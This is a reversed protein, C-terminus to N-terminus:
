FLQPKSDMIIHGEKDKIRIRGSSYKTEQQGNLYVTKVTGDPYERRKYSSTHIERQGNNFEIIKNGDVQLRIITGDPFVCEEHGDTFLYKITQDPFTIEKKGDPYHKEMQNNPFQLVELGDPYTTHTTQADAYFYIVTQDSTTQKVDGNFFTVRTTKGDASIEKRTGNCFIIIHRGNKLVQEVKGDPYKIVEQIEDETANPELTSGAPESVGDSNPFNQSLESQMMSDTASSTMEKLSNKTETPASFKVAQGLKVDRPTTQEIMHPTKKRGMQASRGRDKQGGPRVALETKNLRPSTSEIKKEIVAEAKKWTELRLREMVNVEDRLEKNEKTLTEIQNRLRAHISSWRLEKRKLEEQLDVIQQKLAQIEQREKKDPIARAAAAHKEFIMREKQLRKLEEKKYEEFQSLQETKKREFDEFEKRLDVMAKERDNRLQVLTANEARFQNIEHELEALKDKLLKSQIGAGIPKDNVAKFKQELGQDSRSENKTKLSPFLRKILDSVPPSEPAKDVNKEDVVGKKASAVKRQMIKDENTKGSSFCRDLVSSNVSEASNDEHNILGSEDLDAWTQEDDFDVHEQHCTSSIKCRSNSLSSDQKQSLLIMKNEIVTPMEIDVDSSSSSSSSLDLDTDMNKDKSLIDTPKKRCKSKPDDEKDSSCIVSQKRTTKENTLTSDLDDIESDLTTNCSSFEDELPDCDVTKFAVKDSTPLGIVTKGNEKVRNKHELINHSKLNVDEEFDTNGSNVPESSNEVTKHQDSKIPTSSLRRCENNQWNGQIMKQVFSSNSSFSLEEAAEELFEFENLEINEREKEKNWKELNKQFSTELTHEHGTAEKNSPWTPVVFENTQFKEGNHVAIPRHSTVTSQGTQKSASQEYKQVMNACDTKITKPINQIKGVLTTKKRDAQMKLPSQSSNEGKCNDLATLRKVRLASNNKGKNNAAPNIILGASSRFHNEKNLTTFKCQLKQHTTSVSSQSGAAPQNTINSEKDTIKKSTLCRSNVKSFRALGEGCKLFKRKQHGKDQPQNLKLQQQKLREEEMQMQKELYEEYTEKRIGVGPKIPREELATFSLPDKHDLKESPSPFLSTSPCDKNGQHTDSPEDSFSCGSNPEDQVQNEGELVDNEQKTYEPSQEVAKVPHQDEMNQLKSSTGAIGQQAGILGLLTQQEHVLRQLQEQHQKKLQEQREQQWERLQELKQMVANNCIIKEEAHKMAENNCYLSGNQSSSTCQMVDSHLGSILSSNVDFATQMKGNPMDVNLLPEDHLSDISICSSNNSFQLPVFQTSFSDNVSRCEPTSDTSNFCFPANLIVGARAVDTTWETLFHQGQNNIVASMNLNEMLGNQDYSFSLNNIQYGLCECNM